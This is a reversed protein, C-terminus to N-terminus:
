RQSLEVAQRVSYFWLLYYECSQICIPAHIITWACTKKGSVCVWVAKARAGRTDDQRGLFPVYIGVHAKLLTSRKFLLLRM